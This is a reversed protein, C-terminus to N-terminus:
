FDLQQIRSESQDFSLLKLSELTLLKYCIHLQLKKAHKKAYNESCLGKHKATEQYINIFAM